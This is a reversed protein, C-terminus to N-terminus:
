YSGLEGNMSCRLGLSTDPSCCILAPGMKAAISTFDVCDCLIHSNYNNTISGSLLVGTASKLILFSGVMICLMRNYITCIIYVCYIIVSSSVKRWLLLTLMAAIWSVLSVLLDLGCLVGPNAASRSSRWLFLPPPRSISILSVIVNTSLM